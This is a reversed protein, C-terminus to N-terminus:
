GYIIHAIETVAEVRDYRFQPPLSAQIKHKKKYIGTDHSRM